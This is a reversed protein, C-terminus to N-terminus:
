QPLTALYAQNANVFIIKRNAEDVALAQLANFADRLESRPRFQRVYRGTAKDFQVIRQNGADAIYLGVMTQSTHLASPKSMPTELDRLTFDALRGAALRWLAGDARLVWVDGDIAVDAANSLDINVGPALYTVSSSWVGEASAVYKLIQNRTPDLLYLNGVYSLGLTVNKWGSGDSAARPTWSSRAPDYQLFLGSRDLAVLRGADIWVIDILEGVTREGVKDGTKLIVGDNAAPAASTGAENTTYRYIRGQGRALIFIDPWHTVIRTPAAQSDFTAFRPLFLLVSIGNLTDLQDQADYTLKRAAAHNPAIAKTQEALALVKDFAARAGAKDGTRALNKGSDFVANAQQVLQEIRAAHAQAVEARYNLWAGGGILVLLVPFVLAALRWISHLRASAPASARRGEAPADPTFARTAFAMLHTAGRLLGRLVRGTAQGAAGWDIQRLSEGLAGAAGGVVARVKGPMEAGLEHARSPLRVQTESPQREPPPAPADLTPSAPLPAFSATPSVALAIVSLDTAGALDELSEVIEDPHREVLTDLLEADSLLHALSSTSLLIIDSPELTLHFIDPTYERRVGIPVAGESSYDGHAQAPDFESDFWPSDGPYRQLTTGRVRCTLGPGGQAIFLDSGRLVAAGLGAYRRAERPTSANLNYFFDNGECVAQTLALTISGRSALYARRVTEILERALEDRGEAEGAVEAVLYLTGRAAGDVCALNDPAEQWAGDVISLQAVAM